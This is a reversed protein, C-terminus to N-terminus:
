ACQGTTRGMKKLVAMDSYQATLYYADSARRRAALQTAFDNSQLWIRLDERCDFIKGRGTERVIAAVNGSDANTLVHAGARLAEFATFSFTEPWPAFHLIFDMDADEIADAMAERNSATVRVKHFPVSIPPRFSGFYHFKFGPNGGFEECISRFDEWGKHFSPTGVFGIRAPRRPRTSRAAPRRKRALTIHPLVMTECVAFDVSGRWIDLATQSPAVIIVELAEFVKNMRALHGPRAGGFECGNCVKSGPLPGGCFTSQNQLLTFQECATFYDHLYLRAARNGTAQALEVVAEPQHGLLHHITIEASIDGGRLLRLAACITEYTATGLFEGNLLVGLVPEAGEGPVPALKWPQVAPYVSLHTIGAERCRDTEIQICLETGGITKVWNSHSISLLLRNEPGVLASQVGSAIGESSVQDSLADAHMTPAPKFLLEFKM